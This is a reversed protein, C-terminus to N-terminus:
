PLGSCMAIRWSNACREPGSHKCPPPRPNSGRLAWSRQTSVPAGEEIRGIRPACREFLPYSAIDSAARRPRVGEAERKRTLHRQPAAALDGLRHVELTPLGRRHLHLQRRLDLDHEIARRARQELGGPTARHRDASHSRALWGTADIRSGVTPKAKQSRSCCWCSCHTRGAASKRQSAGHLAPNKGQTM